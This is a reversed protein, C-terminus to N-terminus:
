SVSEAANFRERYSKMTLGTTQKFLRSFSSIDEYGVDQVISQLSRSTSTLRDRAVEIRVAQLYSGISLGTAKTFRRKLTRDSIHLSNALTEIDLKESYNRELHKQVKVVLEDQHDM